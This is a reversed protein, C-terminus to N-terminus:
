NPINYNAPTDEMLSDVSTDGDGEEDQIMQQMQPRQDPVENSKVEEDFESPQNKEIERMLESLSSSSDSKLLNIRFVKPLEGDASLIARDFMKKGYKDIINGERDILYGRANVLRGRRDIFNGNADKELIPDTLPSMEFDGIVNNINFKTFQFIKPFDGFKLDKAHWIKRGEKDIINGDRDVLYGKENVRRGFNDELHTGDKSSIPLIKGTNKDKEFVGIIDKIDFRKGNYNYLRQLDGDELQRRDFRIRGNKDVIHSNPNILWGHKNIRRGKKDVFFGQKTQLLRPIPQGTEDDFDFDLDGQLDHPNFNYKEVCFPAPLEGREDLDDVSFMIGRKGTIGEVVDGKPNILYGRINTPRGQKDVEAGSKDQVVIVNGKEDREWDGLVDNVNFNRKDADPASIGSTTTSQFDKLTKDRFEVKSTNM